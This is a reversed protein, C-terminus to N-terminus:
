GTWGSGGLVEGIVRLVVDLHKEFVEPLLSEFVENWSM